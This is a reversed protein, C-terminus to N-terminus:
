EDCTCGENDLDDLSKLYGQTFSLAALEIVDDVWVKPWKRYKKRISPAMSEVYQMEAFRSMEELPNM